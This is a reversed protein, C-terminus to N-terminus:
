KITIKDKTIKQRRSFCSFLFLTSCLMAGYIILKPLPKKPSAQVVGSANAGFFKTKYINSVVPNEMSPWWLNTAIYQISTVSPNAVGFRRDDIYVPPSLVPSYEKKDNETSINTVVGNYLCMIVTDDASPGGPRPMYRTFTFRQPLAVGFINTFESAAYEAEKFGKDYPSSYSGTRSNGYSDTFYIKGDNYYSVKEPLFPSADHRTIKGMVSFRKNRISIDSLHWIPQFMNNTIDSFYCSSALALWIPSAYFSTEHPVNNSEIIGSPRDNGNKDIFTTLNYVYQGDYSDQYPKIDKRREDSTQIFWECGDVWITFSFVGKVDLDGKTNRVAYTMQGEAKYSEASINISSAGIIFLVTAM